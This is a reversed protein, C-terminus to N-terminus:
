LGQRIEDILSKVENKVSSTIQNDVPQKNTSVVGSSGNAQHGHCQKSADLENEKDVIVQYNSEEKIEKDIINQFPEKIGGCDPCIEEHSTHHKLGGCDPCIEQSDTSSKIEGVVNIENPEVEKLLRDSLFLITNSMDPNINLLDQSIRFLSESCKFITKEKTSLNKM